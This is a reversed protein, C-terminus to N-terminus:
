LIYKFICIKVWSQYSWKVIANIQDYWGISSFAVGLLGLFIRERLRAQRVYFYKASYLLLLLCRVFRMFGAAVSAAWLLWNRSAFCKHFASLLARLSIVALSRRNQRSFSNHADAILSNIEWKFSLLSIFDNLSSIFSLCRHSRFILCAFVTTAWGTEARAGLHWRFSFLM